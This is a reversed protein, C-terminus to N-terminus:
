LACENVRFWGAISKRERTATLVEHPFKESLFIVMRGFEPSIKELVQEGDPAYVVLEGGNDSHWEDNFYLVTSLMRNSQGLMKNTRFADLHKKYFAGAPYYAFHSEYDFLGMFLRRNIGVRLSEMWRLFETTTETDGKIWHIKDSRITEEQQFNSHRGIGAAKFQHEHLQNFHNLLGHLLLEPLAEDIILYGQDVLSDAIFDLISDDFYNM